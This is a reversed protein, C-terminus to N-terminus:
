FFSLFSVHTLRAVRVIPDYKQHTEIADILQMHYLQRISMITKNLSTPRPGSLKSLPSILEENIV